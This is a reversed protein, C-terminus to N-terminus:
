ILLYTGSYGLSMLYFCRIGYYHLRTKRQQFICLKQLKIQYRSGLPPAQLHYPWMRSPLNVTTSLFKELNPFFNSPLHYMLYAVHTVWINVDYEFPSKRHLFAYVLYLLRRVDICYAGDIFVVVLGVGGDSWGLWRRCLLFQM